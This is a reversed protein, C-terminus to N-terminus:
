YVTQQTLYQVCIRECACACTCVCACMCLPHTFRFLQGVQLGIPPAERDTRLVLEVLAGSPGGAGESAQGLRLQGGFAAVLRKVMMLGLGMQESPSGAHHLTARTICDQPLCMGVHAHNTVQALGTGQLPCCTMCWCPPSAIHLLPVLTQSFCLV